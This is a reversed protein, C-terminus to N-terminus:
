TNTNQDDNNEGILEVMRRYHDKNLFKILDMIDKCINRAESIACEEHDPDPITDNRSYTNLFRAISVQKTKDFEIRKNKNSENTPYKLLEGLKDHSPFQYSLFSELLRRAMNPLNYHWEFSSTKDESVKYISHFLYDYESSYKKLIEPADAITSRRGNKSEAKIKLIYVNIDDKYIARMTERFLTFNHTFLFSQHYEKICEIIKMTAKFLNSSDMSSVPDDLVIILEDSSKNEDKLSKM